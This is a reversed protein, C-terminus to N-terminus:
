KNNNTKKKRKISVTICLLAKIKLEVLTVAFSMRDIPMKLSSLKWQSDGCKIPYIERYNWKTSFRQVYKSWRTRICSYTSQQEM